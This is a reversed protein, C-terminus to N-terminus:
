VAAAIAVVTDLSASFSELSASVRALVAFVCASVALFATFERYAFFGVRLHQGGFFGIRLRQGGFAGDILCSVGACTGTSGRKIEPTTLPRAADKGNMTTAPPQGLANNVM